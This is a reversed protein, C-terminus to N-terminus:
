LFRRSGTKPWVNGEKSIAKLVALEDQTSSEEISESNTEHPGINFMEKHQTGSGEVVPGYGRYVNRNNKNHKNVALAMKKEDPLDFFEKLYKLEEEASYEPIKTVYFFGYEKMSSLIALDSPFKEHFLDQFNIVAVGSLPYKEPMIYRYRYIYMCINYESLHYNNYSSDCSIYSLPFYEVNNTLLPSHITLLIRVYM